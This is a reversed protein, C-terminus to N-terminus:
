FALYKYRLINTCSNLPIVSITDFFPWGENQVLFVIATCHVAKKKKRTRFCYDLVGSVCVCVLNLMRKVYYNKTAFNMSKIEYSFIFHVDTSNPSKHDTCTKM